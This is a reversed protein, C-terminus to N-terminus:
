AKMCDSVSAATYILADIGFLTGLTPLLRFLNWELGLDVVLILPRTWFLPRPGFFIKKGLKWWFDIYRRLLNFIPWPTLFWLSGLFKKQESRECKLKQVNKLHLDHPWFHGWFKKQESRECKLKRVNKLDLDHPWFHGWNKQSTESANLMKFMKWIYTM